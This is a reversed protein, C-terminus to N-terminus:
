EEGTNFVVKRIIEEWKDWHTQTEYQKMDQTAAKGMKVRLEKNSILKELANSFNEVGDDCLCGTVGDKILENTGPCNKFGIAPLGMSMGETLALSFGEWYSPFAFIDAQRLVSPVDNTTGKLFVRNGLRNSKILQVLEEYYSPREKAGWLEVIWNPYEQALKAFAQIIIHPRKTGRSLRGVFIIKYQEKEKSLDACVEFSPVANGMTIVNVKPLIKKIHEEFSPLLVQYLVSNELAYIEKEDFSDRQSGHSMTIVPINTKLNRLFYISSEIPCSVIIDPNIEELYRKLNAVLKKEDFDRNIIQANRKNFPRVVERLARLYFPFKIISGDKNKKANYTKISKNLPFFFSGEQEDSHIISVTHGRKVMENAFACVVKAVGDSHNVMKTLNSLLIKM